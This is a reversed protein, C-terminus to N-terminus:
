LVIERVRERADRNASLIDSLTPAIQDPCDDTVKGVVDFLDTFGIKGDLFLRVAEENAANMVCPVIGGRGAAREALSLLPFTDTDPHFFTLKGLSAFDLAEGPVPARDPYSLAYGIPMRMDSVGLQAVVTNDLYEVMSHIISERHIVVDIREAPLGFLHMAEIIELGKNMLSACDVTIKAGMNWTPHGLAQERTVSRLKEKTYGFFAGGSCTLILKKVEEKKGAQLCQFIASHESDVPLIECRNEAATKMVIEGAAVLTEKNALALRRCSSLAAMTPLLGAFGSIANLCVDSASDAIMDCIGSNGAYIKTNIDRIRTKLESAAKEDAVACFRPSYRRIQEEGKKLDSGFAIADVPVGRFQAVDLTQVGISGTSGLITLSPREMTM